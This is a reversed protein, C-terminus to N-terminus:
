ASEKLLMALPRPDFFLGLANRRKACAKCYSRGGDVPTHHGGWSTDEGCDSCPPDNEKQERATRRAWREGDPTTKWDDYTM